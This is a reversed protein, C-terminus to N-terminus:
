PASPVPTGQHFLMLWSGGVQKWISSRLVTQEVDDGTSHRVSRYTVPVLDPALAQAAFDLIVPLPARIDPTEQALADVVIAKDYVRGSSGFERFTDALLASVADRSSRVEPRHLAQELSRFVDADPM